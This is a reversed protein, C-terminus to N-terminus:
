PGAARGGSSSTRAGAEYIFRSDHHGSILIDDLGDGNVDGAGAVSYGSWDGANYGVFSADANSLNVNKGMGLNASYSIPRAPM